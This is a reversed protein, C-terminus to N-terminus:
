KANAVQKALAARAFNDLAGKFGDVTMPNKPEIQYHYGRKGARNKRKKKGRHIHLSAPYETENPVHFYSWTDTGFWETVDFMSTGGGTNVMEEGTDADDFLAVDASSTKEEGAANLYTTDHFRPYLLGDIAEDDVIFPTTFAGDKIARYLDTDLTPM